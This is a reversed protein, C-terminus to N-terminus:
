AAEVVTAIQERLLYRMAKADFCIRSSQGELFTLSRLRAVCSRQASLGAEALLRKVCQWLSEWAELREDHDPDFPEGYSLTISAARLRVYRVPLDPAV